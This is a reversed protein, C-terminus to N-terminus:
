KKIIADSISKIEMEEHKGLFNSGSTDQIKKKGIETLNLKSFKYANVNDGSNEYNLSLLYYIKLKNEYTCRAPLKENYLKHIYYFASDPKKLFTYIEAKGLWVMERSLNKGMLVSDRECTNYLSLSNKYQKKLLRINALRSVLLSRSYPALYSKTKLLKGAKEYNSQASDLNEKNGSDKYWKVFTDGMTNYTAGIEEIRPIGSYLLNKEDSQIDKLHTNLLAISKNYNGLEGYAVAYFILQKKKYIPNLDRSFLNM